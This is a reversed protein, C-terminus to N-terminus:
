YNLIIDDIYLESGTFRGDTTNGFNPKTFNASSNNNLCSENGCSSFKVMIKAPKMGGVARDFSLTVATFTNASTLEQSVTKIVSGDAAVLTLEAVGWDASNKPLYKYMFSVSAPRSNYDWGDYVAEQSDSDYHGLYLEGATLNKPNSFDANNKGWGVTAIYACERNDVTAPQTGPYANYSSGTHNFANTGSGGTSTTKENMTAWPTSDKPGLYNIWWYNTQGNVRTWDEANLLNYPLQTATETTFAGVDKGDAVKGTISVKAAYTTADKLNTAVLYDGEAKSQAATWTSGGNESLFLKAYKALNRGDNDGGTETVKFYAETAFADVFEAEFEPLIRPTELTESVVSHNLTSIRFIYSSNADVPVTVLYDTMARSKPTYTVGEVADWTGRNNATEVMLNAAPDAGNYALNLTYTTQGVFLDEGTSTLVITENEVHVALIVPDSAKGMKDVVTFTFKVDAAASGEPIAIKEILPDFTLVAMKDPNRWLGMSTIGLSKLSSQSAADAAMLDIDAPFTPSIFAAGETAMKVQKLGSRAVINLGLEGEFPVAVVRDLADGSAFGVPTVQPAPANLLEDSLDIVYDEAELTDDFKVVLQADSGADGGNVDVSVFYHHCPEAAVTAALLRAKTGSHREVNVYVDVSGPKVYIPRVEDSPYTVPDLGAAQLEASYAALHKKVGDTYSITFMSNALRATVAATTTENERVRLDTSGYYYPADFGQVDINGFYASLTYDGVGVTPNAALDSVSAWEKTFSGDPSTLRIALDDVTVVGNDAFARSQKGAVVSTNVDVKLDLSGQGNSGHGIPEDGSCSALTLAAVSALVGFYKFQTM